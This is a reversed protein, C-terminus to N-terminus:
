NSNSERSLVTRFSNWFPCPIARVGSGGVLDYKLVVADRRGYVPAGTSCGTFKLWLKWRRLPSRRSTTLPTWLPNRGKERAASRLTPGLETFGLLWGARTGSFEPRYGLAARDSGDEPPDKGRRDGFSDFGQSGRGVPTLRGVISDEM